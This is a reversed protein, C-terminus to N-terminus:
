CKEYHFCHEKPLCILQQEIKLTYRAQTLRTQRLFSGIPSTSGDAQPAPQGPDVLGM